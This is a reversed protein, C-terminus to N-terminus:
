DRLAVYCSDIADHVAATEERTVHGNCHFPSCPRGDPLEFEIPSPLLAAEVEDELLM